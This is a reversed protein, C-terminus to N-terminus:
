NSRYYTFRRNNLRQLPRYNQRSGHRLRVQRINQLENNTISFADLAVFWTVAENCGPTTLSGFYSAYRNRSIAVGLYSLPFPRVQVAANEQRLNQLQRWIQQVGYSSRGTRPQYLAAIVALGDARRSAAAFSGYERKWHVIHLEMAARRGRFTHESGVNNSQGWHFHFQEIVYQGRLPGGSLYPRYANNTWTPRIEITHGTNTIRMSNPVNRYNNWRLEGPRVIVSEGYRWPIDVPSQNNGNCMPYQRGWTAPNRYSFDQSKTIGFLLLLSFIKLATMM